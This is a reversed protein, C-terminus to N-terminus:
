EFRLSKVLVGPHIVRNRRIFPPTQREADRPYNSIFIILKIYGNQFSRKEAATAQGTMLAFMAHKLQLMGISCAEPQPLNNENDINNHALCNLQRQPM